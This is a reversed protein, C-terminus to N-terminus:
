IGAEAHCLQKIILQDIVESLDINEEESNIVLHLGVDHNLIIHTHM